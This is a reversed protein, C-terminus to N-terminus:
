LRCALGAHQAQGQVPRLRAIRQRDAQHPRQDLRKAAGRGVRPRANDHDGAGTGGKAGTVIQAFQAGVRPALGVLM